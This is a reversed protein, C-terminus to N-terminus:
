LLDADEALRGITRVAERHEDLLHRAILDDLAERPTVRTDPTVWGCGRLLCLEECVSDGTLEVTTV